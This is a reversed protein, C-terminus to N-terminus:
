NLWRSNYEKEEKEELKVNAKVNIENDDKHAETPTM